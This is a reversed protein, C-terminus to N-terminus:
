GQLWDMVAGADPLALRPPLAPRDILIVPLRLARAADLKARAADGGANKTVVIRIDHDQLLAMDGALTYPGRSTILTAGLPVPQSRDFEAFRLLWRHPLPAFPELTQRGIALFVGTPEHPLTRAAAQTDPVHTWDDGPQAAWAPRELAALVTGSAQAAAVANRSIQAAFPHTADILHTIRNQRLYDALGEAGGFGGTRTPLPQAVPNLTRGAYSFIADLGADALKRALLSAEATGGLLLIRM